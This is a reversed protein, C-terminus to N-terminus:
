LDDLNVVARRRRVSAQAALRDIKAWPPETGLEEMNRWNGEFDLFQSKEHDTPYNKNEHVWSGDGNRTRHIFGRSQSDVERTKQVDLLLYRYLQPTGQSNKDWVIYYKYRGAARQHPSSSAKRLRPSAVDIPVDLDRTIARFVRTGAWTVASFAAYTTVARAVLALAESEHAADLGELAHAFGARLAAVVDDYTPMAGAVSDYATAVRPFDRLEYVYAAALVIVSVIAEDKRDGLMAARLGNKTSQALASWRVGVFPPTAGPMVLAHTTERMMDQLEELFEAHTAEIAGGEGRLFVRRADVSLHYSAGNLVLPPPREGLRTQVLPEVPEFSAPSAARRSAVLTPPGM